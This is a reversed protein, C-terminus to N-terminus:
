TDMLNSSETYIGHFRCGYFFWVIDKRLKFAHKIGSNVVRIKFGLNGILVIKVIYKPRLQRGHKYVFFQFIFNQPYKM